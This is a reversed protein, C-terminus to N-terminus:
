QGKRSAVRRQLWQDRGLADRESKKRNADLFPQLDVGVKALGQAIHDLLARQDAANAQFDILTREAEARSNEWASRRHQAALGPLPVGGTGNTSTACGALTVGAAAATAILLERRDVTGIGLGEETKPRAHLPSLSVLAALRRLTRLM